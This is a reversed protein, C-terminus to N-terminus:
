GHSVRYNTTLILYKVVGFEVQGFGLDTTSQNSKCYKNMLLRIKKYGTAM